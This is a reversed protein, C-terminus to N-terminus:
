VLCAIYTTCESIGPLFYAKLLAFISHSFIVLESIVKEITKLQKLPYESDSLSVSWNLKYLPSHCNSFPTNALSSMLYLCLVVFKLIYLPEESAILGNNLCLNLNSILISAGFPKLIFFTVVPSM